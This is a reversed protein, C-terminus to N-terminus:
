LTIVKSQTQVEATLLNSSDYYSSYKYCDNIKNITEMTISEINSSVFERQGSRTKMTEPLHIGPYCIDTLIESSCEIIQIGNEVAYDYATNYMNEIFKSTIIKDLLETSVALTIANPDIPKGLYYSALIYDMMNRDALAAFLMKYNSPDLGNTDEIYEGYEIPMMGLTLYEVTYIAQRTRHLNCGAGLKLLNDKAVELCASLGSRRSLLPPIYPVLHYAPKQHLLETGTGSELSNVWADVLEEFAVIEQHKYTALYYINHCSHTIPNYVSNIRIKSTKLLAWIYFQDPLVEPFKLDKKIDELESYYKLIGFENLPKQLGIPMIEREDPAYFSTFPSMGEDSTPTTYSKFALSQDTHIFRPDASLQHTTNARVPNIFARRERGRKRISQEKCIKGYAYTLGPLVREKPADTSCEQNEDPISSGCKTQTDVDATKKAYTKVVTIEGNPFVIETKSIPDKM